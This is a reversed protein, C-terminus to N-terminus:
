QVFVKGRCGFRGTWTGVARKNSFKGEYTAVGPGIKGKIVGNDDVKGFIRFQSGDAQLTGKIKGNKIEVTSASATCNGAISSQVRFGWTGDYRTGANAANAMLSLTAVVFLSKSLKM